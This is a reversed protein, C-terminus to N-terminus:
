ETKSNIYGPINRIYSEKGEKLLTVFNQKAKNWNNGFAGHFTVFYPEVNGGHSYELTIITFQPFGGVHEIDYIKWSDKKTEDDVHDTNIYIYYFSINKYFIEKEFSETYVNKGNEDVPFDIGLLPVMVNDIMNVCATCGDDGYQILLPGYEKLKEKVFDPHDKNDVTDFTFDMSTKPDLKICSLCLVDVIGTKVDSYVDTFIFMGGLSSSILVLAVINVALKKNM